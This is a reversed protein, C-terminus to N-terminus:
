QVPRGMRRQPGVLIQLIQHSSHPRLPGVHHLGFPHWGLLRALVFGVALGLAGYALLLVTERQTTALDPARAGLDPGDRKQTLLYTLAMLGFIGLLGINTNLVHDVSSGPVGPWSFPLADDAVLLVVANAALWMAATIRVSRQRALSRLTTTARPPTTATPM